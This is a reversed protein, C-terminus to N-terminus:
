FRALAPRLRAPLPPVGPGQETVFLAAVSGKALNVYHRKDACLHLAALPASVVAAWHGHGIRFMNATIRSSAAAIRIRGIKQFSNATSVDVRRSAGSRCSNTERNWSLNVTGSAMEVVIHCHRVVPKSPMLEDSHCYSEAWATCSERLERPGFWQSQAM